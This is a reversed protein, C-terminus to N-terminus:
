FIIYYPLESLIRWLENRNIGGVAKPPWTVNGRKNKPKSIKKVKYIIEITSKNVKYACQQDNAPRNLIPTIRNSM